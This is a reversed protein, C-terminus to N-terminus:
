LMWTYAILYICSTYQIHGTISAMPLLANEYDVYTVCHSTQTSDKNQMVLM